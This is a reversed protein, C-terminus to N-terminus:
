RFSAVINDCYLYCFLGIVLLISIIRVVIRMKRSTVKKSMTLAFDFAGWLILLVFMWYLIPKMEM